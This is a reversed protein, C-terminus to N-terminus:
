HRSAPAVVALHQQLAQLIPAFKQGLSSDTYYLLRLGFIGLIGKGSKAKSLREIRRQISRIEQDIMAIAVTRGLGKVVLLLNITRDHLDM